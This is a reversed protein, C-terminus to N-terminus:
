CNNEAEEFIELAELWELEVSEALEKKAAYTKSLEALADTDATIEFENELASIEQLLKQHQKELKVVKDKYSKIKAREAARKQRDEKKNGSSTEATQNDARNQNKQERLSELILKKYQDLDGEYTEVCGDHVLWYEDVTSELLYRDHSVLILAGEYFQLASNLAQRLSIDLHNTPEDLILLNPSLYVLSALVLRAKEGGSFCKVDTQAMENSFMFSGLFNRLAQDTAKPDVRRFYDLPTDIEDFSELAHQAFYGVKLQDHATQQGSILALNGVLSKILTSKGAGNKGLLGIRMGSVLNINVDSLIPADNYGIEGDELVILPGSLSKTTPFEFSFSSTRQVAEIRQMKELMKVRSQAQKAKSAKAKFRDIFSQLHEINKQQKEYQKAQLELEEARLVEYRSYNGGYLKMQKNEILLIENVVQDLFFRDHSILLIMGQYALLWKELWVLADIDLHNTPEDLLLVDSPNLLAQALNLRIQWGGSLEKVQQTLQQQTFGLGSLLKAAEAEIAYGGLEEFSVQKETYHDVQQGEVARQMELYLEYFSAYGSIVYDLVPLHDNLIEQQVTAVRLGNACEIDGSDTELQNLILSFLTTKGVGNNGVIGIKHRPYFTASADVFISKLGRQLSVNKVAIM